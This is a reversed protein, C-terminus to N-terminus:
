KYNYYKFNKIPPFIEQKNSSDIKIIELDLSEKKPLTKAKKNNKRSFFNNLFSRENNTVSKENIEKLNQGCIIIIDRSNKFSEKLPNNLINLNELLPMEKIAELVYNLEEIRNNKLKLIVTNKFVKLNRPDNVQVEELNLTQVLNDYPLTSEDILFEKNKFANFVGTM